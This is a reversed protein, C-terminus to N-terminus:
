RDFSDSYHFVSLLNDTNTVVPALPIPNVTVVIAARPGECNLITQSVYYTTTGATATSPTPATASGTGGTALTYWLLGTGSAALVSATAGECYNIPTTVTPLAPTANVTVSISERPGECGSITQSVYYITTGATATSPTPATASGTGGTPATYWLLGTGTASLATATAGQCYPSPTTVTPLAPIANVTVTIAARLGECGLITQSVYYITTGAIATSPTPATASGTGGTAATYWLLGTGTAGLVTATAGQCYTVPAVIPLAPTANVTVTIAARPGECGLITQSVYYTTTGLAAAATSPTPATAIGTGGTPATYWLLGTGTASLQSATEGQCYNVLTTVTPLAPIANVTVQIEAFPRCTIDAPASNAIAYVYYIGPTNPLSGLTGNAPLDLSATGSTNPTSFGLPIGGTYM